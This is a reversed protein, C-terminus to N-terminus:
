RPAPIGASVASPGQHFEDNLRVVQADGYREFMVRDIKNQTHAAARSLHPKRDADFLVWMVSGIVALRDPDDRPPRSLIKNCARTSVIVGSM